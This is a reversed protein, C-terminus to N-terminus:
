LDEVKLRTCDDTSTRIKRRKQAYFTLTQVVKHPVHWELGTARVWLTTYVNVKEM